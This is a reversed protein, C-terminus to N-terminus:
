IKQNLGREAHSQDVLKLWSSFRSKKPQKPMYVYNRSLIPQKERGKFLKKAKLFYLLQIKFSFRKCNNDM